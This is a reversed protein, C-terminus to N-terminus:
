YLKEYFWELLTDFSMDMAFVIAAIIVSAVMVVIASNQLEAWTPWSTKNILENHVEKFYAKVKNM